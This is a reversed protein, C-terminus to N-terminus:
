RRQSRGEEDLWQQGQVKALLTWPPGSFRPEGVRRKQRIENVVSRMKKTPRQIEWRRCATELEDEIGIAKALRKVHGDQSGDLWLMSGIKDLPVETALSPLGVGGDQVSCHLFASSVCTSLNMWRKTYERSVSDLGALVVKSPDSNALRYRLKPLVHQSLLLLKQRGKLPARGLKSCWSRLHETPDYKVKKIWPSHTVGLYKATDGPEIWTIAEAEIRLQDGCNIVYTKAM